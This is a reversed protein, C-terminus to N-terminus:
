GHSCRCKDFDLSTHGAQNLMPVIVPGNWHRILGKSDVAKAQKLISTVDLHHKERLEWNEM